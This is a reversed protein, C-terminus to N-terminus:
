RAGVLQFAAWYKPSEYAKTSRVDNQAQRMAEAKSRAPKQDPGLWHAYFRDMLLATAKDDVSWLSVLVSRAGKALFARQFGVTGEAQKLDGLGTQCASLVVLDASLPPVDDLLEGITLLGDNVGDPALAVYSSRVRAESGYALGHTALHVIRARPLQERVATETAAGGTLLQAGFRQAVSAGEARAAPLDRLRDRHGAADTVYPMAPDGVILQLNGVSSKREADDLARLSPTYRLAYRIGLPISDGPATLAAFPVLGLAGQPVIVLESGPPVDRLLDNPVLQASLSTAAAAVDALSPEEGEVGRSLGTTSEQEKDGGAGGRAM